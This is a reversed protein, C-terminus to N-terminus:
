RKITSAVGDTQMQLAAMETLLEPRIEVSLLARHRKLADAENKLSLLLAKVNHKEDPDETILKASQPLSRLVLKVTAAREEPNSGFIVLKLRPDGKKCYLDIFSSGGINDNLKSVLEKWMTADQTSNMEGSTDIILTRPQRYEFIASPVPCPHASDYDSTFDIEHQIWHGSRPASTVPPTLFMTDIPLRLICLVAGHRSKQEAPNSSFTQAKSSADVWIGQISIDLTPSDSSDQLSTKLDTLLVSALITICNGPQLTPVVGSVTRINTPKMPPSNQVGSQSNGALSCSLHFDHLVNFNTSNDMKTNSEESGLVRCLNVDLELDLAVSIGGCTDISTRPRTGYRLRIIEPDRWDEMMDSILDTKATTNFNCRSAMHLAKRGQHVLESRVQTSREVQESEAVEKALRHEVTQAISELWAPSKQPATCTNEKNNANTPHPSEKTSINNRREEPSQLLTDEQTLMESCSTDDNPQLDVTFMANKKEIPSISFSITDDTRTKFVHKSGLIGSGDTIFSNRLIIELLQKRRQIFEDEKADVNWLNSLLNTDLRPVVLAQEYGAIGLFDTVICCGAGQVDFNSQNRVVESGFINYFESGYLVCGDEEYGHSAVDSMFSPLCVEVTHNDDSLTMAAEEMGDCLFVRLPLPSSGNILSVSRIFRYDDNSIDSPRLRITEMFSMLESIGDITGENNDTHDNGSSIADDDEDLGPFTTCVKDFFDALFSLPLAPVTIYVEGDDDVEDTPHSKDNGSGSGRRSSVASARPHNEESDSSPLLCIYTGDVVAISVAVFREDNDDNKSGKM